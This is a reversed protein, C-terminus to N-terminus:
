PRRLPWSSGVLLHLAVLALGGLIFAHPEEVVDLVELIFGLAFVIVAALAFM